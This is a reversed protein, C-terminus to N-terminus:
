SHGREQLRSQSNRAQQLQRYLGEMEENLRFLNEKLLQNTADAEEKGENMKALHNALEENEQELQAYAEQLKNDEALVSTVETLKRELDQIRAILLETNSDEKRQKQTQEIRQQQQQSSTSTQMYPSNQPFPQKSDIMNLNNTHIGNFTVTDAIVAQVDIM